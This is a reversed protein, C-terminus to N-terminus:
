NFDRGLLMEALALTRSHDAIKHLFRQRLTGDQFLAARALLRERASKAAEKAGEIDKAAYRAEALTLRIRSEGDDISGLEELLAHAQTAAELAEASRGGALLIQALVALAHARTTPLDATGEIAERASREAGPLDGARCLILGLYARGFAESRRDGVKRVADISEQVIGLAEQVDGKPNLGIALGLNQSVQGFTTTLGMRVAAAVAGRLEHESADLDGVEM